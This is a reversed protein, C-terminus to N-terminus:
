PNAKSDQKMKGVEDALRSLTAHLQSLGEPNDDCIAEVFAPLRSMVQRKGALERKIVLGDNSTEVFYESGDAYKKAVLRM